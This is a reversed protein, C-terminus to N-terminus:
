VWNKFFHQLLKLKRSNIKDEEEMKGGALYNEKRKM